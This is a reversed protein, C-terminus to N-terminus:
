NLGGKHIRRRLLVLVVIDGKILNELYNSTGIQSLQDLRGLSRLPLLIYTKELM